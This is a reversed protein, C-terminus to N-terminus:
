SEWSANPIREPWSWTRGFGNRISVLTTKSLTVEVSREMEFGNGSGFSKSGPKSCGKALEIACTIGVPGAGVVLIKNM